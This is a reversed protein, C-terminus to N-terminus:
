ELFNMMLFYLIVLLLDNSCSIECLDWKFNSVGESLKVLLKSDNIFNDYTYFANMTM